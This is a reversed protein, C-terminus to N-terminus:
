ARMRIVMAMAQGGEAGCVVLGWEKNFFQLTTLIRHLSIMGSAAWPNGTALAGGGPNINESSNEESLNLAEITALVQAATIENIEILDMDDAQKGAKQLAKKIAEEGVFGLGTPAGASVSISVIEAIPNLEYKRVAEESAIICMAAADAPSSIMTHENNREDENIIITQKKVRVAMPVLHEELDAQRMRDQSRRIWDVQQSETYGKIQAISDNIMELSIKGYKSKPQAGEIMAEVPEMVIKEPLFQYRADHIELPIQSMSETGGALILDAAGSKIKYYGNFLAQLGSAGQRQVTYAPVEEPLDSVLGIYRASNSPSSTQKAVGIIVENILQPDLDTKKMLDRVAAEGLDPESYTKLNGDYLGIPTRSSGIILVKKM